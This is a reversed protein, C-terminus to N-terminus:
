HDKRVPRMNPTPTAVRKCDMMMSRPWSLDGGEGGDEEEEEGGARRREERGKGKERKKEEEEEVLVSEWM